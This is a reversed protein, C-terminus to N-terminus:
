GLGSRRWRRWGVVAPGGGLGDNCLMEARVIPAFWKKVSAEGMPLREPESPKRKMARTSGM